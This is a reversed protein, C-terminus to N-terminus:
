TKGFVKKGCCDHANHWKRRMCPERSKKKALWAITGTWARVPEVGSAGMGNASKKKGMHEPSELGTQRPHSPGKCLGEQLVLLLTDAFGVHTGTTDIGAPSDHIDHESNTWSSMVDGVAQLFTRIGLVGRCQFQM